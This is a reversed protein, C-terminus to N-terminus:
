GFFSKIDDQNATREREKETDHMDLWADVYEITDGYMMWELDDSTLKCKYCLALFEETSPIDEM